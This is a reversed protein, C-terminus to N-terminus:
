KDWFSSNSLNSYHPIMKATSSFFMLKRCLIPYNIWGLLYFESTRKRRTRYQFRSSSFYMLSLSSFSSYQSLKLVVNFYIKATPKELLLPIPFKMLLKRVLFRAKWRVNHPNCGRQRGRHLHSAFNWLNKNQSLNISKEFKLLTSFRSSIKVVADYSLPLLVLM